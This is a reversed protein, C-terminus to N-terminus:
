AQFVLPWAKELAVDHVRCTERLGEMGPEKDWDVETPGICIARLYPYTTMKCGVFDALGKVFGEFSERFPQYQSKAIELRELSKPLITSLTWETNNGKEQGAELINNLFHVELILSRLVRFGVLLTIDTVFHPFLWVRIRGNLWAV